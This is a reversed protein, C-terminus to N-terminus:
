QRGLPQQRQQEAAEIQPEAAEINNKVVLAIGKKIWHSAAQPHPPPSYRRSAHPPASSYPVDFIPNKLPLAGEDSGEQAGSFSLQILINIIFM